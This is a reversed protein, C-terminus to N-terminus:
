GIMVAAQLPQNTKPPARPQRQHDVGISPALPSDGKGRAALQSERRRATVVKLGLAKLHDLLPRVAQQEISGNQDGSLDLPDGLKFSAKRDVSARSCSSQSGSGMIQSSWASTMLTRPRPRTIMEPQECAPTILTM